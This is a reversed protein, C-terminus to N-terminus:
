WSSRRRAAAWGAPMWNTRFGGWGSTEEALVQLSGQPLVARVLSVCFDKRVKVSALSDLVGFAPDSSAPLSGPSNVTM